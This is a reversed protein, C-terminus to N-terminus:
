ELVDHIDLSKTSSGMAVMFATLRHQKELLQQLRPRRARSTLRM